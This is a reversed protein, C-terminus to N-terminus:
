DSVSFFNRQIHYILYSAAIVPLNTIKVKNPTIKNASCSINTGEFYNCIPPVVRIVSNRWDFQSHLQLWAISILIPIILPMLAANSSLIVPM